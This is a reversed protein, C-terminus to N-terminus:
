DREEGRGEGDEGKKETERVREMALEKRHKKSQDGKGKRWEEGEEKGEKEVAERKRNRM